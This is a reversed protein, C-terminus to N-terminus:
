CREAPTQSRALATGADQSPLLSVSSEGDFGNLYVSNKVVRWTLRVSICAGSLIFGAFGVDRAVTVM